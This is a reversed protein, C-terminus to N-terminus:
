PSIVRIDSISRPDIEPKDKTFAPYLAVFGKIEALVGENLEPFNALNISRNVFVPLKGSGDDISIKTGFGSDAYIKIITGRVSIVSGIASVPVNGTPLLPEGKLPKVTEATICPMGIIQGRKGTVSVSDGHKIDLKAKTCIFMGRTNDDISFGENGIGSALTGPAVIVKGQAKVDCGEPLGYIDSIATVHVASNQCQSATKEIPDSSNAQTLSTTSLLLTASMLICRRM